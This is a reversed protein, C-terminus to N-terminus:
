SGILPLKFFNLIFDKFCQLRRLSIDQLILAGNLNQVRSFDHGNLYCLFLLHPSHVLVDSSHIQLNSMKNVGVKQKRLDCFLCLDLYGLGSLTVSRNCIM